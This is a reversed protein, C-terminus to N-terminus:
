LHKPSQQNLLSLINTNVKAIEPPPKWITVDVGVLLKTWLMRMPSAENKNQIRLEAYIDSVIQFPKLSIFHCDSIDTELNEASSVVHLKMISM